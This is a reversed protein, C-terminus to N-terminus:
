CPTYTNRHDDTATGVVLGEGAGSWGIHVHHLTFGTALCPMKRFITRGLYACARHESMVIHSVGGLFAPVAALEAVVATITHVLADHHAPVAVINPVHGLLDAPM